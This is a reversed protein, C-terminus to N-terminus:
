FMSPHPLLIITLFQALKECINKLSMHSLGETVSYKPTVHQNM